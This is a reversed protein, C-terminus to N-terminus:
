YQSGGSNLLPSYQPNPTNRNYYERRTLEQGIHLKLDYISYIQSTFILFMESATSLGCYVMSVWGKLGQETHYEQPM